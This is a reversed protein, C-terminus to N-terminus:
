RKKKVKAVDDFSIWGDENLMGLLKKRQQETMGLAEFAGLLGEQKVKSALRDLEARIEPATSLGEDYIELAQVSKHGTQKKITLLPVSSEIARSIFERRGAHMHFDKGIVERESLLNIGYAYNYSVWAGSRSRTGFLFESDDSVDGLQLHLMEAAESTIHVCRDDGNKTDRFVLEQNTLNIDRIRLQALEGPRCGLHRVLLIFRAAKALREDSNRAYIKVKGQEVPPIRRKRRKSVPRSIGSVFNERVQKRTKAFAVLASLAAVELRISTGSLKKKTRPSIYRAREDMYDYILSTDAELAKISYEGLSALVPKIRGAETDQTKESKESFERSVRYREWLENLTVDGPIPKQKRVAAAEAALAEDKSEFVKDLKPLGKRRVQLQFKGNKLRTIGVM